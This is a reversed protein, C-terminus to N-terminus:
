SGPTDTGDALRDERADEVRDECRDDGEAEREQEDRVEVDDDALQDRLADGEPVRLGRGPRTWARRAPEEDDELRQDPDELFRGVPSQAGEAELRGALVAARRVRLGLQLHEEVARGLRALELRLLLLHEVLDEVERVLLDGVHHDRPGLDDRERDVERRLLAERRHDVRRVRAVRDVALREVVDDADEVHAVEEGREDVAADRVHTDLLDEAVGYMTGSVFSRAAISVSNRRVFWCMAITTSSYPAICPM